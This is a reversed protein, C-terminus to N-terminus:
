HVDVFERGKVDLVKSYKKLSRLIIFIAFAVVLAYLWFPTILTKWGAYGYHVFNKMIDLLAFSLFIAFFGNYERKLVNKLSFDVGSSKWQFIRPWFPPV